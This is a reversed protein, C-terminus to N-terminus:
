LIQDFCDIVKAHYSLSSTNPPRLTDSGTPLINCHIDLSNEELTLQKQMKSRRRQWSFPRCRKGLRPTVCNSGQKGESELKRIVTETRTSKPVESVSVDCNRSGHHRIPQMSSKNTVGLNSSFGLTDNISYSIDCKRKEVPLDDADARKRKKEGTAFLVWCQLM